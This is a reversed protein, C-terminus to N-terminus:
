EEVKEISIEGELIMETEECYWGKDELEYLSNGDELFTEVVEAVAPDCEDYDYDDWCGDFTNFDEVEVDLGFVDFPGQKPIESGDDSETSVTFEGGRWGTEYVILDGEPSRWYQREVISKKYVPSINFTAM